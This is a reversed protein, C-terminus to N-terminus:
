VIGAGVQAATPRHLSNPPALMARTAIMKARGKLYSNAREDLPPAAVAVLGGQLSLKMGIRCVSQAM